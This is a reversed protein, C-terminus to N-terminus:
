GGRDQSKSRTSQKRASISAEFDGRASRAPCTDALSGGCAPEAPASAPGDFVWVFADEPVLAFFTAGCRVLFFSGQSSPLPEAATDAVGILRGSISVSEGDGVVRGDLRLIEVTAGGFRGLMDVGFTALFAGAASM